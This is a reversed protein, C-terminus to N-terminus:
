DNIDIFGDDTNDTIYDDVEIPEMGELDKFEVEVTDIEAGIDTVLFIVAETIEATITMRYMRGSEDFGTIDTNDVVSDQLDFNFQLLKDGMDMIQVDVYPHSRLYLLLEAILGDCVDRKTAYVEIQYELTVPLGHLAVKQNPFEIGKTKTSNSIWGTRLFSDNAMDLSFDPLRYVSIFPLLVKGGNRKANISFIEDPSGYYVRDFLSHILDYVAKDYQFLPSKM